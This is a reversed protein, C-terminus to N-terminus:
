GVEGYLFTRGESCEIAVETEGGVGSEGGETRLSQSVFHRLFEIM